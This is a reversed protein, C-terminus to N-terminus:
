KSQSRAVALALNENDGILMRPNQQFQTDLRVKQRVYRFLEGVSVLRDRNTDASGQLGQLLYYTFVGHGNGWRESEHSPENVDSSTIIARGEERYLLTELYLSALNNGLNRTTETSLGASHCTDLLMIVRKCRINQEIYRRLDAMLLATNPMDDVRTDYAIVYLNERVSPDPAGHGALFILLLDNESARTVFSSLAQRIQGNTAQENSLILMDDRSFGGGEPQQLFDYISRADADAYELNPIGKLNNQYRSIGIVLAYKRGSVKTIVAPPRTIVPVAVRAVSGSSDEAEVMIQTQNANVTTTAEFRIGREANPVRTLQRTTTQDGSKLQVNTGDVSVRKIATSATAMGSVKVALTKLMPSFEIAREPELLVIQPPITNRTEPTQQVQYIFDENWNTTATKVVFSAYYMRGRRNQAWVEVTNRGNIFQYGPQLKLRIKIIKGRVGSVIESITGAAQGNITTRIASYDVNDAVPRLLHVYVESLNSSPVVLETKSSPPMQFDPLEIEFVSPAVDSQSPTLPQLILVSLTSCLVLFLGRTRRIKDGTRVGPFCSM